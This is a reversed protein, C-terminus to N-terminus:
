YTIMFVSIPHKGHTHTDIFGPCMFQGHALRRIVLKPTRAWGYHVLVDNLKSENANHVVFAITGNSEVGLIACSIYEVKTPALTHVLSGIFIRRSARPMTM